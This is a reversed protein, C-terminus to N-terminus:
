QAGFAADEPVFDIDNDESSTESEDSVAFFSDPLGAASQIEHFTGSKQAKLEEFSVKNELIDCGCLLNFLDLSLDYANKMGQACKLMTLAKIKDERTSNHHLPYAVGNALEYAVASKEELDTIKDMLAIAMEVQQYRLALVLTDKRLAKLYDMKKEPLMDGIIGMYIGALSLETKLAKPIDTLQTADTEEIKEVCATYENKTDAIANNRRLWDIVSQM